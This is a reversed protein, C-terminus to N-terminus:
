KKLSNRNNSHCRCTFPPKARCPGRCRFLLPTIKDRCAGHQVLGAQENARTEPFFSHFSVRACSHPSRGASWGVVFFTIPYNQGSMCRAARPRDTQRSQKLSAVLGAWRCLSVLRPTIEDRWADHRPSWGLRVTFLMPFFYAPLFPVAVFRKTIQKEM